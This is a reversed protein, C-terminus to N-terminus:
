PRIQYKGNVKSIRKDLTGQNNYISYGYKVTYINQIINPFKNQFTEAAKKDADSPIPIGSPHNHTIEKLTYNTAFLYGLISTSKKEHSTGVINNESNEAGIRAHGWEINTNNAFLEFTETANADGKIEFIDMKNGNTNTPTRHTVSKADFEGTSAIRNGEKDVIHFSSIKDNLITKVHNGQQDFEYEDEGNPDIFILPNNRCYAYPSMFPKKEFLPDRSIFTPPNYYRASYYYMGNEEDFIKGNYLFDPVKGNHWYANYETIVEGM